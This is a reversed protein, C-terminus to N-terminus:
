ILFIQIINYDYLNYREWWDDNHGPPPPPPEEKVIKRKFFFTDHNKTMFSHTTFHGIDLNLAVLEEDEREGKKEMKENKFTRTSSKRHRIANFYVKAIKM